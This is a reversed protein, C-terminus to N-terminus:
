EEYIQMVEDISSAARMQVPGCISSSKTIVLGKENKAKHIFIQKLREHVKKYHETVFSQGDIEIIDFFALALKERKRMPLLEQSMVM